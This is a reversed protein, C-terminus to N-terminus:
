SKKANLGRGRTCRDGIQDCGGGGARILTVQERGHRRGDEDGDASLDPRRRCGMRKGNRPGGKRIDAQMPRWRRWFFSRTEARAHSRLKSGLEMSRRAGSREGIMPSGLSFIQSTGVLRLASRSTMTHRAMPGSLRYFYMDKAQAKSLWFQQQNRHHGAKPLPFMSILKWYMPNYETSADSPLM